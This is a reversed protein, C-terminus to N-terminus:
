PPRLQFANLGRSDRRVPRSRSPINESASSVTFNVWSSAAQADVITESAVSCLLFPNFRSAVSFLNLEAPRNAWCKNRIYTGEAVTRGALGRATAMARRGVPEIPPRGVGTVAIARRVSWRSGGLGQHRHSASAPQQKETIKVHWKHRSGESRRM